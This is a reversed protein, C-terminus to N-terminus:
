TLIALLVYYQWCYPTYQKCLIPQGGETTLLFTCLEGVLSPNTVEQVGGALFLKDLKQNATITNIVACNLIYIM